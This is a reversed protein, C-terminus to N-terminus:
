IQHPPVSTSAFWTAFVIPTTARRKAPLLRNLRAAGPRHPRHLSRLRHSSDDVPSGELTAVTYPSTTSAKNRDSSRQTPHRTPSLTMACYCNYAHRRVGGYVLTVQRHSFWLEKIKDKFGHLVIVQERQHHRTCAHNWRRWKKEEKRVHVTYYNKEIREQKRSLYAGYYM